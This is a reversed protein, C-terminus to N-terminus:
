TLAWVYELTAYPLTQAFLRCISKTVDLQFIALPYRTETRDTIEEQSRAEAIVPQGLPTSGKTPTVQSTLSVQILDM